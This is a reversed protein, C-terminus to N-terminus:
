GAGTRAGPSGSWSRDWGRRRPRRASAARRRSLRSLGGGLRRLVTYLHHAEHDLFFEIWLALPMPGFRSHVGIRELDAPTLGALAALLQVRGGRLQEVVEAPRRAAWAPWEPDEEARYQPLAPTDDGLIRAFRQQFVEQQRGLHALNEHASWKGSPSRRRLADEDMGAIIRPVAAVQERARELAWWAAGGAQPHDALFVLLQERPTPRSGARRLGARELVRISAENAPNTGAFVRALWLRNWADALVVRAAQAALGHGWFPPDLAFLLEVRGTDAEARLGCFGAVAPERGARITWLGFGRVAFDEQSAAIVAEVEARTVPRGDWLFRGVQPDNWQREFQQADAEAIPRLLIGEGRLEAPVNM